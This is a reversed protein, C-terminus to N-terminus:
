NILQVRYCNNEGWKKYEVTTRRIVIQRGKLNFGTEILIGVLAIRLTKASLPLLFEYEDGVLKVSIVELSREIGTEKETIKITHPKEETFEFSQTSIESLKFIPKFDKQSEIEEKKLGLMEAAREIDGNKQKEMKKKEKGLEMSQM